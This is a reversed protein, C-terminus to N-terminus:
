RLNEVAKVVAWERIMRATSMAMHQGALNDNAARIVINLSLAIGILVEVKGSVDFDVSLTGNDKAAQLVARFGNRLMAFYREVRQNIEDNQASFEIITNLMLCGYCSPEPMITPDVRAEFWTALVELNGQVPGLKTFDEFLDLYTDLTKLFLSMKGGYATQLTFRTIGTEQEIQRTGLSCYGHQWFTTMAAQLAAEPEVKRSRAM